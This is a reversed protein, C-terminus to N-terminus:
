QQLPPRGIFDPAGQDLCRRVIRPTVFQMIAEHLSELCHELTANPNALSENPLFEFLLRRLRRSKEL